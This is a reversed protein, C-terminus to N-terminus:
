GGLGQVGQITAISVRAARRDVAMSSDFRNPVYSWCSRSDPEMVMMSGGYGGWHFSNPFPLPVM